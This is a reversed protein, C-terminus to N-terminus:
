MAPAYHVSLLHSGHCCTRSDQAPTAATVGPVSGMTPAVVSSSLLFVTILCSVAGASLCMGVKAIASGSFVHTNANSLCPMATARFGNALFILTASAPGVAKAAPHHHVLRRSCCGPVSGPTWAPRSVTPCFGSVLREDVRDCVPWPQLTRRCSCFRSCCFSAGNRGELFTRDLLPYTIFRCM